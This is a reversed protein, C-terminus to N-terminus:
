WYSVNSPEEQILQLLAMIFQLRQNGTANMEIEGIVNIVPPDNEFHRYDEDNILLLPRLNLVKGENVPTEVDSEFLLPHLNVKFYASLCDAFDNTSLYDPEPNDDIEWRFLTSLLKMAIFIKQAKTLSELDDGYIMQLSTIAKSLYAECLLFPKAM